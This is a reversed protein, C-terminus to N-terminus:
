PEAPSASWPERAILTFGLALYLRLAGSPNDSEAKLRLTDVGRAAFHRAAQSLLWTAVGQRRHPAAVCLDKIFGSDWCLAVGALEGAHLALLCSSPDFGSDGTFDRHWRAYRPEVSGGGQAYASALLTHIRPAYAESWPALALTRQASAPTFPLATPRALSLLVRGERSTTAM